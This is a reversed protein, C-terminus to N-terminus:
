TIVGTFSTLRYESNNYKVVLTTQSSYYGSQDSRSQVWKPIGSSDKISFGDDKLSISNIFKGGTMDPLITGVPLQEFDLYNYAFCDKEGDGEIELGNDFELINEESTIVKM